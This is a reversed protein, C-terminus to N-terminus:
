GSTSRRPGALLPPTSDAPYRWSDAKKVSRTFVTDPSARFFPKPSAQFRYHVTPDQFALRIRRRHVSLPILGAIGARSCAPHVQDPGSRPHGTSGRYFYQPLPVAGSIDDPTATTEKLSVATLGRGLGSRCRWPDPACSTRQSTSSAIIGPVVQDSIFGAEKLLTSYFEGHGTTTKMIRAGVFPAAPV